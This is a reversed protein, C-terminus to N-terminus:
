DEEILPIASGIDFIPEGSLYVPEVHHKQLFVLIRDKDPHRDLSGTFALKDSSLKFSAGGIFGFEYGPLDIFGPEIALVEIGCSELAKLMGRDATIVAHDNVICCSCRAYGQKVFVPKYRIWIETELRPDVCAPNYFAYKGLLLVNYAACKPYDQQNETDGIKVNIYLGEAKCRKFKEIQLNSDYLTLAKCYLNPSVLLNKRDLHVAQMDIHGSVADELASSDPASMLMMSEDSFHLRNKYKGGIILLKVDNKPLNPREVFRVM